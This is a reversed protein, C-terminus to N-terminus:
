LRRAELRVQVGGKTGDQPGTKNEEDQQTARNQLVKM